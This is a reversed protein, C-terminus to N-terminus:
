RGDAGEQRGNGLGKQINTSPGSSMQLRTQMGCTRSGGAAKEGSSGPTPVSVRWRRVLLDRFAAAAAPHHDGM